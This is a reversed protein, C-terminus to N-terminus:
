RRSAKKVQRDEPEKAKIREHKVCGPSDKLLLAAEEETFEVVQGKEYPGGLSSAYSWQFRYKGM